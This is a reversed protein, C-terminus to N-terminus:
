QPGTYDSLNLGDLHRIRIMRATGTAIHRDLTLTASPTSDGIPSWVVKAQGSLGEWPIGGYPHTDPETPGWGVANHGAESTSDGINVRCLLVNSAASIPSSLLTLTLIFIISIIIGIIKM